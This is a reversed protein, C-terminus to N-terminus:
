RIGNKMRRETNMVQSMIDQAKGSDFGETDYFHNAAKMLDHTDQVWDLSSDHFEKLDKGRFGKKEVDLEVYKGDANKIVGGRKMEAKLAKKFMDPFNKEIYRKLDAEKYLDHGRRWDRTPFEIYDKDNALHLGLDHLNDRQEQSIVPMRGGMTFIQGFRAVDFYYKQKFANNNLNSVSYGGKTKVSVKGPFIGLRVYAGKKNGPITRFRILTKMAQKITLHSARTKDGIARKAFRSRDIILNTRKKFAFGLKNLTQTEAAKFTRPVALAFKEFDGMDVHLWASKGGPSKYKVTM